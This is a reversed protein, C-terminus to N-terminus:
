SRARLRVYSRPELRALETELAPLLPLLAHVENSLADLVILAVPLAALNQQFPMNKDVTIFAEFTESALALLKGNKVGSWGMEVA